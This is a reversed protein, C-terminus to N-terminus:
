YLVLFLFFYPPKTLPCIGKFGFIDTCQTAIAHLVSQALTLCLVIITAVAVFAPTITTIDTGNEIIGTKEIGSKEVPPIFSM